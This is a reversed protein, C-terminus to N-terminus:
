KVPFIDKQAPFIHWESYIQFTYSEVEQTGGKTVLTVPSLCLAKLRGIASTRDSLNVSTRSVETVRITGGKAREREREGSPKQRAQLRKSRQCLM